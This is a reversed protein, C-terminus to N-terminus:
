EEDEEEVSGRLQRNRRGDCSVAILDDQTADYEVTFCTAESTHLNKRYYVTESGDVLRYGGLAVM